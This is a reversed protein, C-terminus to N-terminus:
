LVRWRSLYAEGCGAPPRPGLSPPCCHAHPLRAHRSGLWLRELFIRLLWSRGLLPLVASIARMLRLENLLVICQPLIWRLAAITALVACPVVLPGRVPELPFLLSARFRLHPGLLLLVLLNQLVQAKDLLALRSLVIPRMGHLQSVRPVGVVHPSPYCGRCYLAMRSRVVRRPGLSTCPTSPHVQVRLHPPLHKQVVHVLAAPVRMFHGPM